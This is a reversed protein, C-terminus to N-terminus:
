IFEINIRSKWRVLKESLGYDANIHKHVYNNDTKLSNQIEKKLRINVAHLSMPFAACGVM